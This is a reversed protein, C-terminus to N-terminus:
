PLSTEVVSQELLTGCASPKFQTMKWPFQVSEVIPEFLRLECNGVGEIRAGYILGFARFVGGHAVIMPPTDHPMELIPTFAKAVRQSFQAQTEGNPPELGRAMYRHHDEWPINEWDGLMHEHIDPHGMIPLGFDQNVIHATDRARIMHSHYIKSPRLPLHHLVCALTQAQARGAETLPTDVGGGATREISNSVSQGHRLLYFPSPPLLFTPSNTM